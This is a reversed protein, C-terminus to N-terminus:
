RTVALRYIYANGQTQGSYLAEEDLMATRTAVVAPQLIITTGNKGTTVEMIRGAVLRTIQIDNGTTQSQTTNSKTHPLYLLLIRAQGIQTKLNEVPAGDLDSSGPLMLSGNLLSFEGGFSELDESSWGDRFQDDLFNENLGTGVDVLMLNGPGNKNRSTLVIEPLGDAESIVQQQEKDWSFNDNGQHLEIQRTWTQVQQDPSMELVALPWAPVCGPGIPRVGSILNCVSAECTAAVDAAPRGALYPALLPIPNHSWYDRRARVLMSTPFEETENVNAYGTNPDIEIQALRIDLHTNLVGAVQNERAIKEAAERAHQSISLPDADKKLLDDCALEHAGALAACQAVTRLEEQAITLWYENLVLALCGGCVLLAISV